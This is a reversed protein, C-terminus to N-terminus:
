RGTGSAGGAPLPRRQVPHKRALAMSLAAAGNPTMAAMIMATSRERMRKAVQMQVDMALQEFVIAAKAPKMSQYIRALEDFQEGPEPAPTNAANAGPQQPMGPAGAPPAAAQIRAETAKAAQERLDLARQRRAAARDREAVSQQISAGLRTEPAETAASIAVGHGVAAMGGAGAVLTLLSRKGSM